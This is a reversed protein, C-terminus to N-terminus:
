AMIDGMYASDMAIYRGVGKYDDIMLLLLNIWRQILM